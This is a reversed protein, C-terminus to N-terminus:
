PADVYRFIIQSAKLQMPVGVVRISKMGAMNYEIVLYSGRPPLSGTTSTTGSSDLSGRSLLFTSSTLEQAQQYWRNWRNGTRM